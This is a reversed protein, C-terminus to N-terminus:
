HRSLGQLDLVRRVSRGLEDSPARTSVWLAPGDIEVSLADLLPGLGLLRAAFDRSWALRKKEILDKVAACPGPADCHLEVRATATSGPGPLSLALGVRDVGLVGLAAARRPDTENPSAGPPLNPEAERALRDRLARSLLATAVIAPAPGEASAKRLLEDSVARHEEPPLGGAVFADIMADLWPGAGVLYPGGDRYALRGRTPDDGDDILLFEGRTSTRPSKGRASITKTACAVLEDKSVDASFAVGFGRGEGADGEEAAAVVVERVRAAADFGCASSSLPGLGRASTAEGADNTLAAAGLAALVPQAVPSARLAAVDAHVVLWADRPVASLLGAASAPRKPKRAAVGFAIAAAIGAIGLLLVVRPARSVQGPRAAWRVM